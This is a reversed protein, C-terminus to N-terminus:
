QNHNNVLQLPSKSKKGQRHLEPLETSYKRIGIIKIILVLEKALWTREEVPLEKM